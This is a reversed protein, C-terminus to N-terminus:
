NSLKSMMQELNISKHQPGAKIESLRQARLELNMKKAEFIAEILIWYPNSTQNTDKKLTKM